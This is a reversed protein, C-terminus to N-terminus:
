WIDCRVGPYVNELWTGGFDHNKEYITLKINPVKAPLLVGALIGSLGGGIVAVRIERPQDIFRNVISIRSRPNGPHPEFPVFTYRPQSSGSTELTRPTSPESTSACPSSLESLKEVMLVVEGNINAETTTAM